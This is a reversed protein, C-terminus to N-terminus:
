AGRPSPRRALPRSLSKFQQTTITMGLVQQSRLVHTCTAWTASDSPGSPRERTSPRRLAPRANNACVIRLRRVQPGPRGDLTKTHAGRLCLDSVPDGVLEVTILAHPPAALVGSAGGSGCTGAPEFNAARLRSLADLFRFPRGATTLGEYQRLVIRARRRHRASTPRSVRRRFDARPHHPESTV